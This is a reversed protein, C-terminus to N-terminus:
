GGGDYVEFGEYCIVDGIWDCVTGDKAWSVWVDERRRGQMKGWCGLTCRSICNELVRAGVAAVDNCDILILHIESDLMM